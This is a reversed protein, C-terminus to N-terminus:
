PLNLAFPWASRAREAVRRLPRARRDAGLAAPDIRAYGYRMLMLPLGAARASAADNESDGIM